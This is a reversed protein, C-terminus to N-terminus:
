VVVDLEGVPCKVKTNQLLLICIQWGEEKDIGGM